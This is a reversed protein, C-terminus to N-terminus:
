RRVGFHEPDAGAPVVNPAKERLQSYTRLASAAQLEELHDFFDNLYTRLESRATGSLERQKRILSLLEDQKAEFRDLTSEILSDPVKFGLFVRDGIALQGLEVSPIAYGASVLGSFDFDYAVPIFKGTTKDEFLKVNRVMSMNFDANGIMYQFVAHVNEAEPDFQNPGVALCDKCENLGLRQELQKDSEIIFAHRRVTPLKGASDVYRVRLLHVRYSNPTITQYMQYATYEKLVATEAQYRVDECHTVLKYKDFEALGAARLQSKSFNLKLPAFDCTRRRYKGRMKVEVEWSEMQGDSNTLLINADQYTPEVKRDALLRELDTTVVAEDFGNEVMYDFISLAEAEQALLAAPTMGSLVLLFLLKAFSLVSTKM